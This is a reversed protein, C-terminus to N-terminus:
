MMKCYKVYIKGSIMVECLWSDDMIFSYRDLDIIGYGHHIAMIGHVNGHNVIILRYGHDKGIWLDLEGIQKVIGIMLAM